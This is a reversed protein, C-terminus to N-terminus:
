INYPPDTAVLNINPLEYKEIAERFDMNYIKNVELKELFEQGM